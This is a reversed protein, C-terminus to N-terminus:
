TFRIREYVVFYYSSRKFVDNGKLYNLGWFLIALTVVILLGLKVYKSYKM